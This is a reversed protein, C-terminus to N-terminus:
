HVPDRRSTAVGFAASTVRPAPGNVRYSGEFLANWDQPLVDTREGSTSFGRSLMVWPMQEPLSDRETVNLGSRPVVWLGVTTPIASTHDDPGFTIDLGGMRQGTLGELTKAIDTGPESRRAAWGLMLTAEYSRRQWGLPTEDWWDRFARRFSELSRVPLYHAGRAYTDAAVTGAPIEADTATLPNITEDFAAIQPRWGRDRRRERRSLGVTRAEATSVYSADMERLEAFLLAAASPSGHFVISEVQERKLRQLQPTLDEVMPEYTAVATVRGGEDRLASRTSDTATEGMLTDEALIGVRRYRRDKLLYSAMRRAQWLYPPSSQFLHPRLLRASYLDGLVLVAPIGAQDLADEAAPLGEPPGAYVIGVTRESAALEEVLETALEPDGRDDRGVLSLMLETDRRTRNLEQIAVDVGEFADEGRWASPGSMTGVLGIVPGTESTPSAAPRRVSYGREEGEGDCASLSLVVLLLGAWSKRLM